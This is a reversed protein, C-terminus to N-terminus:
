ATALAHRGLMLMIAAAAKGLLWSSLLVPNPMDSSMSM